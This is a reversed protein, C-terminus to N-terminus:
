NSIWLSQVEIKPPSKWPSKMLIEDPHSVVGWNKKWGFPATMPLTGFFAMREPSVEFSVAEKAALTIPHIRSSKIIQHDSAIPSSLEQIRRNKKWWPIKPINANKKAVASPKYLYSIIFIHYTINSKHIHYPNIYIYIYQYPILPTREWLKTSCWEGGTRLPSSDDLFSGARMTYRLVLESWQKGLLTVLTGNPHYSQKWSKPFHRFCWVHRRAYTATAVSYGWRPRALRPAKSSEHTSQHYLHWKLSAVVWPVEYRYLVFWIYWVVHIYLQPHHVDMQFGNRHKEILSGPNQEM